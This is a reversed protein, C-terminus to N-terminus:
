HRATRLRNMWYAWAVCLSFFVASSVPAMQPNPPPPGAINNYWALTLLGVGGWFAFVSGRKESHTARSYVVVAVLWLGGEVVLTAPISTWLGLGYREDSGPALPMDPRHSVWDLVWHSVVVAFLVWAARARRRGLFYVAAFLAAWIADMLLSHSMAINSADLYNAAGMGSKFQVHEIGAIMFLCGLLDAAMAAM